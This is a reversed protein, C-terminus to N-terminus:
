FIQGISVGIYPVPGFDRIPLFVGAKFLFGSSRIYKYQASPIPILYFDKKEALGYRNRETIVYFDAVAKTYTIGFGFDIFSHRSLKLNYDIGIPITMDKGYLGVGIRGRFDIKRLLQREYNVSILLGNGGLEFYAANFKVKSISNETQGNARNFLLIGSFFFLFIVPNIRLM